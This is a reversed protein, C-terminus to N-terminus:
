LGVGAVGADLGAGSSGSGRDPVWFRGLCGTPSGVTPVWDGGRGPHVWSGVGPSGM